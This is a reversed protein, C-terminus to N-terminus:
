DNIDNRELFRKIMTKCENYYCVEIKDLLYDLFNSLDEKEIKVYKQPIDIGKIRRKIDNMLENVKKLEYITFNTSCSLMKLTDLEENLTM